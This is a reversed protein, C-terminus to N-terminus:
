PLMVNSWCDLFKPVKAAFKTCSIFQYDLAVTNKNRLFVRLIQKFAYAGTMHSYRFAGFCRAINQKPWFHGRINLFHIESIICLAVSIGLFKKHRQAEQCIVAM